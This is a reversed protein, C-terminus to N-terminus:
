RVGRRSTKRARKGARRRKGSKVKKKPAKRKRSPPRIIKGRETPFAVLPTGLLMTTPPQTISSPVGLTTFTADLGPTSGDEDSAVIRYHYTTGPTLDHLELVITEEGEVVQGYIRAGSYSTDTGLQLEWSTPQNEPDVTDTITASTRTVAGAEGPEVKPLIAAGTTFTQDATESTGVLVGEDESSAVLRFHYTTEPRLGSVEVPGAAVEGFGEGASAETTGRGYAESTGYEIHYKTRSNEPNITGAFTATGRTVGSVGVSVAPSEPLTKFEADPGDSKEGDVNEGMLRYHYLMNPELGELRGSVPVPSTGDGDDNSETGDRVAAISSGYGTTFGYDFSSHSEIGEPDVEGALIASTSTVATAAGTMLELAAPTELRMKTSRGTEGGVRNTASARYVYEAEPELGVREMVKGASALTGGRTKTWIPSGVRRYEIHWEDEEMEPPEVSCEITAANAVIETAPECAVKPPRSPEEVYIRVDDNGANTVYLRGNGNASYAVGTSRVIENESLPEIALREIPEEGAEADAEYVDVHAEGASDDVFVDGTTPAVAVAVSGESDLVAESMIAHTKPEITLELTERSTGDVVYIANGSPSVAVASAAPVAFSAVSRGEADFEDVFGLESGNGEFQAVYVNGEADVAVGAPFGFPEGPSGDGESVCGGAVGVGVLHCVYEYGASPSSGLPKFKDVVKNGEDAVYVDGRSSGSSNDVAVGRVETSFGGPVDHSDIVIPEHTGNTVSKGDPEFVQVREDGFDAVFLDGSAQEVAVSHPGKFEGPGPGEQGFKGEFVFKGGAYAPSSAALLGGTLVVWAVMWVPTTRRLIGIM